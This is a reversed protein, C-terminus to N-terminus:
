ARRRRRRGHSRSPLQGMNPVDPIASKLWYSAPIPRPARAPTDRCIETLISSCAWRRTASRGNSFRGSRGDSVIQLPVGKQYYFCIKGPRKLSLTGAVTKGARDTQTFSATMSSVAKLHASVMALDANQAAAPSAIALAVFPFVFRNTM